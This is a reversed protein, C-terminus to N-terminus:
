NPTSEPRHGLVNVFKRLTPGKLLKLAQRLRTSTSWVNEQTPMLLYPCIWLTCQCIQAERQQVSGDGDIIKNKGETKM